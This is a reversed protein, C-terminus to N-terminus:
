HGVGILVAGRRDGSEVAEHAEACRALTFDETVAPRLAGAALADHLRAIAADRAPADLIYILAIDITLAKFLYAGFPLQPTMDRASGYVAIVGAPPRSTSASGSRRSGSITIGSTMAEFPVMWAM